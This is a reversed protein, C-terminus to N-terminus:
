REENGDIAARYRPRALLALFGLQIGFLVTFRHDVGTFSATTDMVLLGAIACLSALGFARLLPEPRRQWAQWALVSGGALLALYAFFGLIGLKLWFWLAAFHVYQRGEEHEVSLPRFTAAWPVAMGLGTIPHEGIAGLVNAREDLRYRDQVNAELKSPALSEARRVIPSGSSQFGVSALLWIAVVMMLGVPILLRRGTPTMGLVVVLLVGLVVGIWFSRRYSLALSAILLPSGVLMWRPPSARALVAALISLLVVMILWNAASEYYTLTTRGEVPSGYHGFIEVLGLAAKAIALATVVVIVRILQRRELELNAIAIPLFLLYALVNEGLVVTRISQGAAHGTVAGAVMALALLGLGLALPRPVRLSRGSRMVELGVSVVTLVVLFDLATLGKYLQHYLQSTFGFLGFTPGECLITLGALLTVMVVPRRVLIVVLVMLLPLALGATGLKHAGAFALLMTVAAALTAVFLERQALMRLRLRRALM